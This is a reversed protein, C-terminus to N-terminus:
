WYNVLYEQVVGLYFRLTKVQILQLLLKYSIYVNKIPDKNTAAEIELVALLVADIYHGFLFM